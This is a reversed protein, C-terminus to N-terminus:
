TAVDFSPIAAGSMADISALRAGLPPIVVPDVLVDIVYAGNSSLADALADDLAALDDVRRGGVLPSGQRTFDWPPLHTTSQARMLGASGTGVWPLTLRSDNYVVLTLLFGHKVAIRLPSLLDLSGDGTLVVARMGTAACFVVAGGLSQGMSGYHPGIRAYPTGGCEGLARTLHFMASSPEAFLGVTESRRMVARVVADTAAAPDVLPRM